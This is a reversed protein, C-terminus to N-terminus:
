SASASSSLFIQGEFAYIQLMRKGRKQQISGKTCADETEVSGILMNVPYLTNNHM